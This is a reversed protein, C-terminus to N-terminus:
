QPFMQFSACISSSAVRAKGTHLTSKQSTCQLFCAIASMTPPIAPTFYPNYLSCIVYVIICFCLVFALTVYM